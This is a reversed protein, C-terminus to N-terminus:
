NTSFYENCDIVVNETFCDIKHFYDTVAWMKTHPLQSRVGFEKHLLISNMRFVIANAKYRMTEQNCSVQEFNSRVFWVLWNPGGNPYAMRNLTCAVRSGCRILIRYWAGFDFLNFHSPVRHCLYRWAKPEGTWSGFDIRTCWQYRIKTHHAFPVSLCCDYTLSCIWLVLVLLLVLVSRWDIM